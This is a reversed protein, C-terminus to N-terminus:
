TTPKRKWLKIKRFGKHVATTSMKVMGSKKPLQGQNSRLHRFIGRKQMWRSDGNQFNKRWNQVFEHKLTGKITHNFLTVFLEEKGTVFVHCEKCLTVGNDARFTLHPFVAKRKIHHAEIYCKTRGCLRCIHRDRKFVRSRWRQYQPTEYIGNDLRRKQKKVKKRSRMYCPLRRGSLRDLM